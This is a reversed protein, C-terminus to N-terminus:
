FNYYIGFNYGVLQTTIFNDNTDFVTKNFPALRIAFNISFNDTINFDYGQVFSLIAGQYPFYKEGHLGLIIDLIYDKRARKKPITGVGFDGGFNLASALSSGKETSFTGLTGDLNIQFFVRSDEMLAQRLQLGLGYLYMHTEPALVEYESPTDKNYLTGKKELPLIHVLTALQFRLPNKYIKKQNPGAVFSQSWVIEGTTNKVLKLTVLLDNHDTMTVSGDIFADVRLKKGLAWLEDLTPITNKFSFSTDTIAVRITKLEPATVVDIRSSKRFTNEIEERIYRAMGPDFYTPNIRIRYVAVREIAPPIEMTSDKLEQLVTTLQELGTRDVKEASLISMTLLAVIVMVKRM